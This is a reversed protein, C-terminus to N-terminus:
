NLRISIYRPKSLVEVMYDYPTHIKGQLLDAFVTSAKGSVMQVHPTSAITHFTDQRADVNWFVINPLQYGMMEFKKKMMNYFTDFNGSYDACADFEMDTILILNKPMDEQSLHNIVATQLILDFVSEMNTNAVEFPIVNLKEALSANEPLTVWKAQRSFIMMKNHYASTNREAFYVALSLAVNLPLGEMSGSTDAVVITNSNANQPIYNNLSKWMAEIEPMPQLQHSYWAHWSKVYKQVIECPFLHGVNMKAAVEKGNITITKGEQVANIYEQFRVQDHRDFAKTYKAMANGPVENYNVDSWRNDSIVPELVKSHKRLVSLMKRYAPVTLGFAKATKLGLRKSEDSSTNTSKLWKALLSIPQHSRFNQCDKQFVGKLYAFMADECPTGELAYFDDYRGFFAINDFNKIVVEPHCSALWRLCTRFTQREGLGEKIDRAYFITKLTLEPNEDWAMTLHRYVDMENRDRISGIIAFLDLCKSMTTDLAPQGNETVKQASINDMANVFNISM